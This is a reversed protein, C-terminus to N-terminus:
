LGAGSSGADDGRLMQTNQGAEWLTFIRLVKKVFVRGLVGCIRGVRCMM